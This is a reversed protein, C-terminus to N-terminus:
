ISMLLLKKKQNIQHTMGSKVGTTKISQQSKAFTVCQPCYNDNLEGKTLYSHVSSVESFKLTKSNADPLNRAHANALFKAIHLKYIGEIKLFNFKHYLPLFKTKRRCMIKIM